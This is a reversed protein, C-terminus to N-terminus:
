KKKNYSKRIAYMLCLIVFAVLGFGIAYLIINFFWPMSYTAYLAPNTKVNYITIGSCVLFGIVCAWLLIHLLTYIQKM